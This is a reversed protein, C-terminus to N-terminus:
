GNRRHIAEGLEIVYHYLFQIDEVKEKRIMWRGDAQAFLGVLPPPLDRGPVFFIFLVGGLVVRYLRNSGVRESDPASFWNGLRGDLYPAVALFGYDSPNGPNEQLIMTRLKEQHPGLKVERFFDLSSVGMRWLISLFLLKIRKYDIDRIRLYRGDDVARGIGGDFFVRKFYAEYRSLRTECVKCLLPERVGKQLIIDRKTPDSSIRFFRHKSDYLPRYLFEPIVHSDCLQTVQQCLACKM